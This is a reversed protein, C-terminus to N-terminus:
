MWEVIINSHQPRFLHVIYSTIIIIIIQVWDGLRKMRLTLYMAAAAIHSPRVGIFQYDQLTSECIYRALTHTELTIGAAKFCCCIQNIVDFLKLFVKALRRLFRYAVPYNIDYNLTKLIDREWQLM